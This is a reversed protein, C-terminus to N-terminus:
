GADGIAFAEKVLKKRDFVENYVFDQYLKWDQAYEEPVVAADLWNGDRDRLQNAVGIVPIEKQMGDLFHFYPSMEAGAAQLMTKGLYNASMDPGALQEETLGTQHIDYNTWIIYPTIFMRQIQASGFDEYAQPALMDYFNSEIGAQHDGFMVIMTPEEEESFYDVLGKFAKDSEHILSFYQEALPYEADYDLSIEQKFDPDEMDYGGHNQITVCFTFLKEGKEKESYLREIRRYVSEDTTFKRTKEIDDDWNELSIFQDFGMDQYVTKRNWASSKNPHIAVTEYGQSRLMDAIGYEPDHCYAMYAVIEQPLFMRANGTLFEYESDATGGGMVPMFLRGKATNKKLSHLFPLIEENSRIPYLSELDSLSENMVAILNVPRITGGEQIEAKQGDTEEDEAKSDEERIDKEKIDEAAQKVDEVSYGDPKQNKLYGTEAIMSTLVGKNRYAKKLNWFDGVSLYDQLLYRDSIAFLMICSICVVAGRITIEVGKWKKPSEAGATGIKLTQICGTLIMFFIMGQLLITTKANLSFDYAGAVGAATGISYFDFITLPKLRFQNLYSNILGLVTLGAIFIIQATAAKKVLSVLIVEILYCILLNLALAQGQLAFRKGSLIQMVFLVAPPILVLSGIGAALSVARGSAMCKRIKKSNILFVICLVNLLIIACAYKLRGSVWQRGYLIDVWLLLFM